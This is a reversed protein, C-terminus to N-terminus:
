VRANTADQIPAGGTKLKKDVAHLFLSGLRMIEDVHDLMDNMGRSVRLRSTTHIAIDLEHIIQNRVDFLQKLRKLDLGIEEKSIALAAAVECVRAPSQFSDGTLFRIYAEVAYQFPKSSALAAALYKAASKAGREDDTRLEKVLYEEFKSRVAEDSELMRPLSDRLLQKMCGDFGACCMVLMARLLDQEDDTTRGRPLGRKKRLVQFSELLVEASRGAQTWIIQALLVGEDPSKVLPYPKVTRLAM